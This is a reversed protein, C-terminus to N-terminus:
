MGETLASYGYCDNVLVFDIGAASIGKHVIAYGLNITRKIKAFELYDATEQENMIKM